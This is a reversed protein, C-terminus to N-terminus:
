YHQELFPFFASDLATYGVENPHSDGSSTAYAPNLNGAGDALVSYMDFVEFTGPHETALTLLKQNYARHNWVLWEDTASAVQPLANGAIMKLGRNSAAAYVSDVYNVNRDLNEQASLSDGGVFDAFCLKFFLIPQDCLLLSDIIAKASAVIEPPSQVEHRELTFRGFIYPDAGWYSFWGAMVSRGLMYVMAPEASTDGTSFQFPGAPELRNGAVDTATTDVAFTYSTQVALLTDPKWYVLSDSFWDFEGAAFPTISFAAEVSAENMAESFAVRVQTNTPVGSAGNAPYSSVVSPPADDAQKCALL